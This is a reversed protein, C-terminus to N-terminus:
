HSFITYSAEKITYWLNGKLALVQQWAKRSEEILQNLM